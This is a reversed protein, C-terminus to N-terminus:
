LYLLKIKRLSSASIGNRAYYHCCYNYYYCYIFVQPNYLHLVTECCIVINPHLSSLSNGTLVPRYSPPSSSILLYVTHPPTAETRM